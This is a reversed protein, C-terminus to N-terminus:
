PQTEAHKGGPEARCDFSVLCTSLKVFGHEPRPNSDRWSWQMSDFGIILM